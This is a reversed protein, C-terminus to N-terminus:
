NPSSHEFLSLWRQIKRNHSTFPPSTYAVPAPPKYVRLFLNLLFAFAVSATLLLALILATADPNMPINLLAQSASLHHIVGPLVSQPCLAAGRVAFFPCDGQMSGDSGYTMVAFSFFATVLFSVLVLPPAIKRLAFSMHSM